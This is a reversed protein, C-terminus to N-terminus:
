AQRVLEQNAAVFLTIQQKYGPHKGRFLIELFSSVNLAKANKSIKDFDAETLGALINRSYDTKAKMWVSAKPKEEEQGQSRYSSNSFLAVVAVLSIFLNKM